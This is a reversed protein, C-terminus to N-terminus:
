VAADCRRSLWKGNEALEGHGHKGVFVRETMWGSVVGTCDYQNDGFCIGSAFGIGSSMFIATGSNQLNGVRFGSLRPVERQLLNPGALSIDNTRM